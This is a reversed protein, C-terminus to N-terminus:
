AAVRGASFDAFWRRRLDMGLMQDLRGLDEDYYAALEARDQASPRPKAKDEYPVYLMNVFAPTHKIKSIAGAMGWTRMWEAGSKALRAATANRPRAAALSKGRLDEPITLDELGLFGFLERAFQTSDDELDDFLAIHIQEGGFLELYPELHKAYLSHDLIEPIPQWCDRFEGSFAGDKIRHLYASFARDIPNRLCVMLKVEPLDGKIRGAAEPSYLYDHSVEAIVPEGEVGNFNALYWSTGREFFRDFYYIDKSPTMHAQPHWRLAEWVWTSGAKDPGIYIFNPMKKNM